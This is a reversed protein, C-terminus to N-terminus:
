GRKSLCSMKRGAASTTLLWYRLWRDWEPNELQRYYLYKDMLIESSVPLACGTIANCLARGARGNGDRFPHITEFVLHATAARLVPPVGSSEARHIYDWLESMLGQVDRSHPARHNGVTVGTNRYEGPQKEPHLRMSTRHFDLLAREAPGAAMFEDLAQRHLLIEGTECVGEIYASAQAELEAMMGAEPCGDLSRAWDVWEQAEKVLESIEEGYEPGNGRVRLFRNRNLQLQEARYREILVVQEEQKEWRSSM